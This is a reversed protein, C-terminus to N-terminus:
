DEELGRPRNFLLPKVLEDSQLPPDEIVAYIEVKEPIPWFTGWVTMESFHRHQYTWNYQATFDEWRQGTADAFCRGVQQWLAYDQAKLKLLQKVFAPHSLDFATLVPL